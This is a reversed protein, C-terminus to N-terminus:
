KCKAHSTDVSGTSQWYSWKRAATAVSTCNDYLNVLEAAEVIKYLFTICIKLFRLVYVYRVPMACDRCPCRESATRHDHLLIVIKPPFAAWFFRVAEAHLRMPETRKRYFAQPSQGIVASFNCSKWAIYACGGYSKNRDTGRSSTIYITYIRRKKCWHNLCSKVFIYLIEKKLYFPM